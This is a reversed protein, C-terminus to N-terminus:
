EVVFEDPAVDTEGPTPYKGSSYKESDSESLLFPDKNEYRNLAEVLRKM